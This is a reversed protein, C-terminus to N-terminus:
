RRRRILAIAGLGLLSLTAPEPLNTITIVAFEGAPPSIANQGSVSPNPGFYLEQEFGGGNLGYSGNGVEAYVNVSGLDTKDVTLTISGLYMNQLAWGTGSFCGSGYNNLIFGPGFIGAGTGTNAISFGGDSPPSANQLTSASVTGDASLTTNHSYLGPGTVSAYMDVTFTYIGPEGPKDLLLTEGPGGTGNDNAVTVGSTGADGLQFWVSTAAQSVSALAFAAVTAAIMITNKKM